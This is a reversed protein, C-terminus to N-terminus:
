ASDHSHHRYIREQDLTEFREEDDEGLLIEEDKLLDCGDRLAPLTGKKM